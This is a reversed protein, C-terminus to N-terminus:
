RQVHVSGLSGSVNPVRSSDIGRVFRALLTLRVRRKCCPSISLLQYVIFFVKLDGLAIRWIATLAISQFTRQGIQRSAMQRVALFVATASRALNKSRGQCFYTLLMFLYSSTEQKSCM